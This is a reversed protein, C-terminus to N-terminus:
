EVPKETLLAGFYLKEAKGEGLELVHWAGHFFHGLRWPKVTEIGVVRMNKDLYVVDIPFRM